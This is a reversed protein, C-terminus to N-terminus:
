EKELGWSSNNPFDEPVLAPYICAPPVELIAVVTNPVLVAVVHKLERDSALNHVSQSKPLGLLPTRSGPNSLRLHGGPSRKKQAQSRLEPAREAVGGDVRSLYTVAM